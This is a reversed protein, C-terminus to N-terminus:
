AAERAYIREVRRTVFEAARLAMAMITVQPNVGLSGPITSGDCIFLNHVDHTEHTDDVVSSFGDTGMRCTGLPHYATLDVHRAALPAHEFATVDDLTRLPARGAIPLHVEHAGAAMFVRSLIGLGRRVRRMDEQGLWYTILPQGGPGATVRGRSSDKVLFGFVVSRPFQELFEVWRPGWGASSLVALDLPATAGEFLIGEDHFEDICTGQPVANWARTEEQFLGMGGAAPHISLNRGVEGSANALGQSLLLAPTSISGCALVVAKARVTVHRDGGPARVVGEVGVATEGHVVVRDVRLGTVLQAGRDLALPVYSINTSRKADTPCGFCCLGQGDCGPANRLLPHHAYGLRQCGRAVVQAPVGLAEATSPGVELEREVQEFFPTMRELTFDVLGLDRRWSALVSEPARFCTGSNVLTTGGVGCGLPIPIAANGLAVTVGARRYMRRMMEMPRGSFDRRTLYPGEEVMLVALGRGALERALPAGGAGTGVIVVDCELTEGHPLEEGPTVQRWWRPQEAAAPPDVAFRCGLAAYVARDDVWALKVFSLIGRLALRSVETRELLAMVQRRGDETLQCFRTRRSALAAADLSWLLARYGAQVPAPLDAVLLAVRHLTEESVGPLIRGPPIAATAVARLIEQERASFFPAAGPARQALGPPLATTM